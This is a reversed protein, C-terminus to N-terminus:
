CPDFPCWDRCGYVRLGNALVQVQEWYSAHHPTPGFKLGGHRAWAEPSWQALGKYQGNQALPNYTSEHKMICDMLATIVPRIRAKRLEQLRAHWRAVRVRAAYSSQCIHMRAMRKRSQKSIKDRKYVRGAYKKYEKVTYMGEICRKQQVKAARAESHLKIVHASAVPKAVAVVAVAMLLTLIFKRM